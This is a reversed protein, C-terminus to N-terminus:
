LRPSSIPRVWDRDIEVAVSRQLLSVSVVLRYQNKLTVIIGEVGALPGREVSVFQGERLFPWPGVVSGSLVMSRVSALEREDVAIPGQASSVISVVGPTTLIPLRKAADFRCFAYGPFLPTDLEKIRDSWRRRSRYTPLFSEYEKRVLATHVMKEANSRVRVAYWALQPEGM